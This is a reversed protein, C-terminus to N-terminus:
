LAFDDAGILDLELAEALTDALASMAEQELTRLESMLALTGADLVDDYANIEHPGHVADGRWECEPCRRLLHWHGRNGDAQKWELPQVLESRCDPCVHLADSM